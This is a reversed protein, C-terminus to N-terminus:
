LAVGEGLKAPTFWRTARVRQKKKIYLLKTKRGERITYGNDIDEKNNWIIKDNVIPYKFNVKIIHHTKDEDLYVQIDNVYQKLKELIDDGKTKSMSDVDEKYMDYWDTPQNSYSSTLLNEIQEHNKRININHKNTQNNLAESISHYRTKTLKGEVLEVEIDGLRKDIAKILKSSNQNMNKLRRIKDDYDVKSKTESDMIKKKFENKTLNSYKVVEYVLEMLHTEFSTLELGKNMYCGKSRDYKNEVLGKKYAMRKTICIYSLRGNQRAGGIKGGCHGCTLLPKLIYSNNVQNRSRDLNNQALLYLRERVPKYEEDTVIRPVDIKVSENANGKYFYYGVYHTNRVLAEISGLSWSDKKRRTLINGDLQLKIWMPPKGSGWWKLIKKVWKSEKEDVVLKGNDNKYGFPEAGGQWGGQLVRARKGQILRTRRIRNEYQAFEGLIGFMLDDRDDELNVKGTPTYLICGSDRIHKRIITFTTTSRSLRDNNYVFLNKIEGLKMQELLNFMVIRNDLSEDSASMGGENHIVPIMKLQEAKQKGLKEQNELSTGEEEQTTTSVRTYIHLEEKM